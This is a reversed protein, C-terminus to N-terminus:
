NVTKQKVNIAAFNIFKKFKLRGTMTAHRCDLKQLLGSHNLVLLCHGFTHVSFCAQLGLAAHLQGSQEM